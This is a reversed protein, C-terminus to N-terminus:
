LLPYFVEATFKEVIATNLIKFLTDLDASLNRYNPNPPIYISAVMFPEQDNPTLAVLTVGMMWKMPQSPEGLRGEEVGNTGAESVGGVVM